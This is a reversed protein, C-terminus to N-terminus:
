QKDYYYYYYYSHKYEAWIRCPCPLLVVATVAPYCFVVIKQCTLLVEIRSFLSCLFAEPTAVVVFDSADEQMKSPNELEVVVTESSAAQALDTSAPDVTTSDSTAAVEKKEKANAAKQKRATLDNRLTFLVRSPKREIQIMKKVATMLKPSIPNSHHVRLIPTGSTVRDGPEVLVELGDGSAGYGGLGRLVREVTETTCGMITGSLPCIYRSRLSSYLHILTSNFVASFTKKAPGFPTKVLKMIGNGPFPAKIVTKEAALKLVDRKERLATITDASVGQSALMEFFKSKAAGNALVERVQKDAETATSVHKSFTLLTACQRTVTYILEQTGSGELAQMVEFLELCYGFSNGLPINSDTLQLVSSVELKDLSNRLGRLMKKQGMVTDKGICGVDGMVYQAGTSGILAAKWDLDDSSKNKESDQYPDSTTTEEVKTTAIFCGVNELLNNMEEVSLSGRFGPICKLKELPSGMSDALLGPVKLGLAALIPIVLLSRNDGCGQGVTSYYVVQFPYVRWNPDVTLKTFNEEMITKVSKREQKTHTLSDEIKLEGMMQDLSEDNIVVIDGESSSTGQKKNRQKKASSGPKNEITTTISKPDPKKTNKSPSASPGAESDEQQNPKKKRDRRNQKKAEQQKNVKDPKALPNIDPRKSIQIGQEIEKLLCEENMRHDSLTVLLNYYFLKMEFTRGPPMTRGLNKEVIPDEITWIATNGTSVKTVHEPRIDVANKSSDFECAYFKLFDLFIEGEPQTIENEYVETIPRTVKVHKAKYKSVKDLSNRLGRLMKKQGMVTDKGICGVDGMVYQAGTSGILAAKWDLDDSSKNKESDQYPDSTTTEEVKTTAIFCGVNDLLNNMEEVSLNGRFGPICKLKELPSGMSDASLLFSLSSIVLLGPVKLGLAALIPIVLLSRNDGCGQGVTSYYVVKWDPDVSLKTFNEEMITKVSKREQKTHTLSDEIKLEGMMQDLSEDNIVVIDGESSSTGQKKNRQKKASSGPKNEITKTISKPDPKKTNKSPSASPGAESDEQQNPKKKRDRRNQKKAEQQKNVKDPKALPNIDPRKSIQIGQEIEKLLCEENMRHDSLTVLLNYYFLKMEFTRGPPMTRGLNKEVIPDEITWIATNGTSVKTVHEPRIDVANKSSDFECAYFKLFDLFIEGEPQTIENEYVETIPRTVKVHKAKYKSHLLFYLFMIVHSYSSLGSMKATGYVPECSLVFKLFRGVATIKESSQAYSNLLASNELVDEKPDTDSAFSVDMEIGNNHKITIIPVKARRVSHLLSFKRNSRIERLMPNFYSGKNNLNCRTMVFCDVDSNKSGFGNICSGYVFVKSSQGPFAHECAETLDDTAENRNKNYQEDPAIREDMARILNTLVNVALNSRAPLDADSFFVKGNYQIEEKEM